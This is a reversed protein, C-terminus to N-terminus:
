GVQATVLLFTAPIVTEAPSAGQNRIEFLDVLEKELEAERGNKAAAEFANMTPGYWRRFQSVFEAPKGAFRFTYTAMIRLRPVQHFAQQPFRPGFFM